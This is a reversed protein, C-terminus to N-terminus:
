RRAARGTFRHRGAVRTGFGHQRGPRQLPQGPAGAADLARENVRHPLPQGLQLPETAGRPRDVRQARDKQIMLGRGARAAAVAAPAKAPAVADDPAGVEDGNGPAAAEGAEHPGLDADLQQLVGGLATAM